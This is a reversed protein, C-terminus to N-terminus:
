TGKVAVPPEPARPVQRNQWNILADFMRGGRTECRIRLIEIWGPEAVERDRRVAVRDGRGQPRQAHHRAAVHVADGENHLEVM